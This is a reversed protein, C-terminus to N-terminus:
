SASGDAQDVVETLQNIVDSGINTLTVENAQKNAKDVLYDIRPDGTRLADEVIEDSLRKEFDTVWYDEEVNAYKLSSSTYNSDDFVEVVSLYYGDPLDPVNAGYMGAHIHNLKISGVPVVPQFDVDFLSLQIFLNSEGDSLTHTFPVKDAVKRIKM